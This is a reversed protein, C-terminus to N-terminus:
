NDLIKQMVDVSCTLTVVAEQKKNTKEAQEVKGDSIKIWYPEADTFVFQIANNWNKVKNSNSNIRKIINKITEEPKLPKTKHRWKINGQKASNNKDYTAQTYDILLKLISGSKSQLCSLNQVVKIIPLFKFSFM